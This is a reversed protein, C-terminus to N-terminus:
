LNNQVRQFSVCSPQLLLASRYLFPIYANSACKLLKYVIQIVTFLLSQKSFNDIHGKLLQVNPDSEITLKEEKM